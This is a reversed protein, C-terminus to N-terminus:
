PAPRRFSMCREDRERIVDHALTGNIAQTKEWVHPFSMQSLEANPIVIVNVPMNNACPMNKLEVHGNTVSTEAVCQRMGGEGDKENMVGEKIPTKM